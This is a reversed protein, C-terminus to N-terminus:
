INVAEHRGQIATGWKLDIPIVGYKETEEARPPVLVSDGNTILNFSHMWLSHIDLLLLENKKQEKFLIPM